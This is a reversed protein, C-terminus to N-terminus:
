VEVRTVNILCLHLKNKNTHRTSCQNMKRKVLENNDYLRENAKKINEVNKFVCDPTGLDERPDHKWVDCFGVFSNQKSDFLFIFGEEIKFLKQPTTNLAM